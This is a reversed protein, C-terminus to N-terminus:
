ALEEGIYKLCMGALIRIEEADMAVPRQGSSNADLRMVEAKRQIRRLAVRLNEATQEEVIARSVDSMSM